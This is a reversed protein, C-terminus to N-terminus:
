PSASFPACLEPAASEHDCIQASQHRNAEVRQARRRSAGGAEKGEEAGEEQPSQPIAGPSSGDELRSFRVCKAEGKFKLKTGITKHMSEEFGM